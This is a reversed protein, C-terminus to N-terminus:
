FHHLAEVEAPRAKEKKVSRPRANTVAPHSCCDSHSFREWESSTRKSIRLLFQQHCIQPCTRCVERNEVCENDLHAVRLSEFRLM